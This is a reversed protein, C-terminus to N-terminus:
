IEQPKLGGDPGCWPIPEGAPSTELAKLRFARYSTLYFAFGSEDREIIEVHWGMTGLTRTQRQPKSVQVVQVNL